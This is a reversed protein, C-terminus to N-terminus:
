GCGIPNPMSAAAGSASASRRRCPGPERGGGALRGGSGRREKRFVVRHLARACLRHIRRRLPWRPWRRLESWGCPDARPRPERQTPLDRVTAVLWRDANVGFAIELRPRREDPPHPPDVVGADPEGREPPYWTESKEPPRDPTAASGICADPLTGSSGAIATPARSRACWSSSSRNRNAWRALDARDGSGVPGARDSLAYGQAGGRQGRAEQVECRAPGARLRPRHLRRSGHAGRGAPLTAGGQEVAEFPQLARARAATSASSWVAKSSARCSRRAASWRPRGRHRGCADGHQAAERRDLRPPRSLLRERRPHRDPPLRPHLAGARAGRAAARLISRSPRQSASSSRRKSVLCTEQGHMFRRWLLAVEDEGDRRLDYGVEACLAELVWGDVVNGGFGDAARRWSRRRTPSRRGPRSGRWCRTCRAVASTTSWCPATRPSLTRLRDGGRGARRPLSRCAGRAPPSDTAARCSLNRLGRRARHRCSGRGSQRRAAKIERLLERLLPAGRAAGHDTEDGLRALPRLPEAQHFRPQLDSRLQSSGHRRQARASATRHGRVPRSPLPARPAATSRASRGPRPPRRSGGGVAGATRCGDLRTSRPQPLAAALELVRAQGEADGGRSPTNTTCSRDGWGRAPKMAAADGGGAQAPLRPHHGLGRRPRAPALRARHPRPHRRLELPPRAVGAARAPDAAAPRRAELFRAPSASSSVPPGPGLARPKPPNTGAFAAVRHALERVTWAEGAMLYGRGPPAQDMVRVIGDVLDDLFVWSTKKEPAILAPFRGLLLARLLTNAGQKKGPPGYVSAPSSPTSRSARGRGSSCGRKRRGSKTARTARRLPLQPPKSAENAPTGDAPSGGWAAMSSISLFRGVGLKSALSAVNESGEVNAAAM